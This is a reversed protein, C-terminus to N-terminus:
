EIVGPALSYEHHAGKAAAKAQGPSLGRSSQSVSVSTIPNKPLKPVSPGPASHAHGGNDHAVRCEMVRGSHAESLAVPWDPCERRDHRYRSRLDCESYAARHVKECECDPYGFQSMWISSSHSADAAYSRSASM